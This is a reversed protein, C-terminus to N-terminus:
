YRGTGAGPWLRAYRKVIEDADLGLAVAYSRLFGRVFVDAPLDEFRGAELSSLSREPIRTRKAIDALAVGQEDRRDRLYSCLEQRKADRHSSM